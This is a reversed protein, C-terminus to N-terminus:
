CTPIRPPFPWRIPWTFDTDLQHVIPLSWSSLLFNYPLRAISCSPPTTFGNLSLCSSIVLQGENRDEMGDGMDEEWLKTSGESYWRCLESKSQNGRFVAPILSELEWESSAFSCHTPQNLRSVLLCIPCFRQQSRAERLFCTLYRRRPPQHIAMTPTLSPTKRGGTRNCSRRSLPQQRALM